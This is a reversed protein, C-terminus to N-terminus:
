YFILDRHNNYHEFKAVCFNPNMVAKLVERARNFIKLARYMLIKIGEKINM